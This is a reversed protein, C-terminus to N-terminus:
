RAGTIDFRDNKLHRWAGEIVGSAIPFRSSLVEDYKLNHKNELLYSAYKVAYRLDRPSTEKSSLTIQTKKWNISEVTHFKLSIRM